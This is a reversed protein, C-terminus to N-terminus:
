MIPVNDQVRDTQQLLAAKEVQMLKRLASYGNFICVLAFVHFGLGLWDQFLLSLVSDLSFLIMGVIFAWSKKKLALWGFLAIIGTFIVNLFVSIIKFILSIQPLDESAAMSFVDIVQTIGLGVPFRMDGGFLTLATNVLSLAAIWYFWKAGGEFVQTQKNIDLKVPEHPPVILGNKITVM